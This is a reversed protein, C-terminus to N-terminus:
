SRASHTPYCHRTRNRRSATGSPKRLAIREPISLRRFDNPLPTM